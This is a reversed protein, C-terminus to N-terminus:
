ITDVKPAVCQINTTRLKEQHDKKADFTCAHDEPYRCAVCVIKECKCQVLISCKRKCNSCGRKSPLM